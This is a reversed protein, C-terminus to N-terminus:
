DAGVAIAIANADVANVADRAHNGIVEQIVFEPHLLSNL